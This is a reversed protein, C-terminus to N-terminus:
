QLLEGCLRLSVSFMLPLGVAHNFKSKGISATTMTKRQPLKKDDACKHKISM